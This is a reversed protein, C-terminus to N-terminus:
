WSWGVLENLQERMRQDGLINVVTLEERPQMLMDGFQNKVIFNADADFLYDNM